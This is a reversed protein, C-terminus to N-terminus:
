QRKRVNLWKERSAFLGFLASQATDRLTRMEATLFLARSPRVSPALPASVACASVLPSLVSPRVRVCASRTLIPLADLPSRTLVSALPASRIRRSCQRRSCPAFLLPASVRQLWVGVGDFGIPFPRCKQARELHLAISADADTNPTSRAMCALPSSYPVCLVPSSACQSASHYPTNYPVLYQKDLFIKLSIKSVWYLCPNPSKRLKTSSPTSIPHFSTM